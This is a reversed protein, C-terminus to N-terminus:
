LSSFCRLHSWDLQWLLTCESWNVDQLALTHAAYSCVYSWTQSYYWTFHMIKPFKTSQLFWSSLLVFLEQFEKGAKTTADFFFQKVLILAISKTRKLFSLDEFFSIFTRSKVRSHLYCCEIVDAGEVNKFKFSPKWSSGPSACRTYLCADSRHRWQRRSPRRHTPVTGALSRRSDRRSTRTLPAGITIDYTNISVSYCTVSSHDELLCLFHENDSM